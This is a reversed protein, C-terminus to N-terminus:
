SARKMLRRPSSSSRRTKRSAAIHYDHSVIRTGPALTEFKPRLRELMDPLLYVPVVTAESIDAKFLDDEKITVLKAVGNKAANHRALQALEPAIEFGVGRCGRIKAAQVVIRGDGCGLDYVIDGKKVQAMELMKEVIDYPTPVYVCDPTQHPGDDESCAPKTTTLLALAILVTVIRYKHAMM